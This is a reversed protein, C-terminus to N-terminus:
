GESNKIIQDIITSQITGVTIKDYKNKLENYVVEVCQATATVGIFSADIPATDCLDLQEGAVLGYAGGIISTGVIALGVIAVNIPEYQTTNELPIYGVTLENQTTFDHKAIYDQVYENLEASTPAEAYDKSVDLILWRDLETVGTQYGNSFVTNQGNQGDSWFAIVASYMGGVTKKRNLSVINVGYKIVTNKATGRHAHLTIVCRNNFADWHYSLEGGFHSVLSNSGGITAWVSQPKIIDFQTTEDTIGDVTVHFATGAWSNIARLVNTIGTESMGLAPRGDLNYAIHNARVTIVGAITQDIEYIRFPEPDAYPRPVTMLVANVDIQDANTGAIPYTMVLCFAGNKQETIACSMADTLAKKASSNTRLASFSPYIYIM